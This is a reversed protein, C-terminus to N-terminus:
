GDGGGAARPPESRREKQGHLRRDKAVEAALRERARSVRIAVANETCGLVQAVQRHLLGEWAVLRLVEQDAARLRGLCEVLAQGEVSVVVEAELDWPPNVEAELRERLQARRHWSRRQNTLVRRAVGYLWPLADCVDPVRDLRRWAVLFTESVVEHADAASAARREAYALVAGFHAAYLCDFQGERTAAATM